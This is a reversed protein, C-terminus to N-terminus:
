VEANIREKSLAWRLSCMSLDHSKKNVTEILEKSILYFRASDSRMQTLVAKEKTELAVRCLSYQNSLILMCLLFDLM